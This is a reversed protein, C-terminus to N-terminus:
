KFPIAPHFVITVKPGDFDIEFYGITVDEYTLMRRGNEMFYDLNVTEEIKPSRKLLQTLVQISIIQIKKSIEDLLQNMVFGHKETLDRLEPPTKYKIPEIRM